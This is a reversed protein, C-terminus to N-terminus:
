MFIAAHRRFLGYILRAMLFGSKQMHSFLAASGCLQDAGKNKSCPYYLGELAEIGFELGRAMTQFQMAWNTESRTPFRFVPKRLVLSM